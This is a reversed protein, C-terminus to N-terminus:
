PQGLGCHCGVPPKGDTALTSAGPRQWWLPQRKMKRPAIEAMSAADYVRGGLVTWRVRETVRIDKLPDGDIVALDALKGVEISGLDKDMGVYAAGHLTSARLAELPTMGGQALSWLEWHVGLGERQGHAGNNVNVGADLLGKANRSAAIHNWERQPVRKGRRARPDVAFRPVFSMLRKNAWVDTTGYWFLEGALGGYAVNLTPTYGVRTGGWLQKVDDYVTAVPVAHEVGTHGDIVQTLNHMLLAGGEPVVMVKNKRAATLVQQRQDRRPQNYSKVSIAGVGAMRRLHSEADKLSDVRAMYGPAEAGYLITGTSYIRPAVVAGARQLEAAAFITHTHNSPDHITTVGFALLALNGWNQEPIIGERGQAGHAHVDILGPVVTTGSADLVTAGKPVKVAASAGVAGIRDGKILITGSEIVEDGKMTVLKANTLAIVSSTKPRGTPQSFGIAVRKPAAAKKDKGKAGLALLGAVQATALRPGHAWHLARSDGSWHVWDGVDTSAQAIPMANSKRTIKVARGTAPFPTVWANWDEVFALKTGDPSVQYRRLFKGHAVERVERQELELAELLLGRKSDRRSYFLTKGDAGFHAHSGVRSVRTPTGGKAAVRYLGPDRSWLPSRLWGGRTKRFVIHKGDPSFAPELYHGPQKVVRRSKGGGKGSLSVVRVDGFRADSWTTYAVLKGDRSIAPMLEVGDNDRTLRRPKGGPLSRVWLKGLAQYVVHRGTPDVTVWRLMKVDFREPAVEVPFRIAERIERETKLKFPIPTVRASAVDVRHIGGRAWFVISKTDPTWDMAPYVGHIAWTEQLDRDLIDTLVREAGSTLDHLVLVSRSRVRRVYALWKGDPSPTPRVAGGSGGAVGEIRGTRRDLREIRYIQANPDKNYQFTKGASADRSYYLWRGDASFVPEGLDKQETVKKTMQLGGGGGDRHYLWIEGAGLSRKGTFHKRGAVYMGDPTWAPSNLLRFREKTLARLNKGDADMVWLNDGGSRDSTFAISRGDPSYRPQMDWAMGSTLARPTGGTIALEYIDGLLDFVLKKGSPHVDVSMWTGTSTDISVTKKPGPPANVDWSPKKSSADSPKAAASPCGSLM